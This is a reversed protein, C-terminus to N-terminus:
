NMGSTSNRLMETAHKHTAETMKVGGLMRAIEDIRARDDLKTIKSQVHQSDGDETKTVQFHQDGMAAVQPLHTICMVQRSRGLQRLLQGIIEAVSGGIGVDVEDFVLTPVTGVQSTIVQIALSIRSLEGGSAVKALPKLAMGKHASVCFEIQEQGHANGQELTDLEISFEGGAMAITQMAETVARAMKKGAKQREMSLKEALQQYTSEAAHEQAELQELNGGSELADIQSCVSELLHPLADPDVHYKRSMNHIATVRQEIEQLHQPDLDLQQRYDRLEYISEQVQIQASDLLDIITQLQNDYELLHQLQTKVSNIQSVASAENDSLLAIGTETAELLGALHSLRNHDAQLREWEDVTVNLSALEQKQWELRELKERSESLQQECAMRGQRLDQWAQYAKKLTRALESCDAFADLLDRQAARQLLAQHAHQSHIVVLFEGATRLQQLTAPHGNIFARSRGTDDLVRRLLCSEPDGILSNEELWDQLDPLAEVDFLASIEARECGQRIQSSDGREGLALSLADIMISKGAGTEGTLVTFGSSFGLEMLEVIVFNRISLQKLM